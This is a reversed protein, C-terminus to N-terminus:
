CCAQHEDEAEEEEEEETQLHRICGAPKCACTEPVIFNATAILDLSTGFLIFSLGEDTPQRQGKPCQKKLGGVDGAGAM